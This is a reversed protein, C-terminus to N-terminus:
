TLVHMEIEQCVSVQQEMFKIKARLDRRELLQVMERYSM